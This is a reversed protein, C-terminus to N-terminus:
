GGVHINQLNSQKTQKRIEKELLFSNKKHTESVSPSVTNTTMTRINVAKTKYINTDTDFQAIHYM